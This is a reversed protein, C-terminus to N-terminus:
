EGDDFLYFLRFYKSLLFPDTRYREISAGIPELYFYGSLNPLKTELLMPYNAVLRVGAVVSVGAETDLSLNWGESRETYNISLVYSNGELAVNYFYSADEYLPLTVYQLTM